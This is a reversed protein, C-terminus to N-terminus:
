VCPIEMANEVQKVRVQEHEKFMAPSWQSRPMDYKDVDWGVEKWERVAKDTPHLVEEIVAKPANVEAIRVAIELADIGDDFGRIGEDTYERVQGLLEQHHSQRECDVSRHVTGNMDIFENFQLFKIRGQPFLRIMRAMRVPKAKGGNDLEQFLPVDHGQARLQEGLRRHHRNLAGLMAVREWGIRIASYQEGVLLAREAQEESPKRDIIADLVFLIGSSDIGVFITGGPDSDASQGDALDGGGYVDLSQLWENWAVREGTELNLFYEEVGDSCHMFGNRHPKFDFMRSGPTVPLCLIEKRASIPDIEMERQFKEVSTHWPLHSIFKGPSTEEIVSYQVKRWDAFRNEEIVTDGDGEGDAMGQQALALASGAHIPTGIWTLFQGERNVMPRFVDLILRVVKRRHEKSDNKEDEPDDVAIFLGGRGRQGSQISAGLIQSYRTGHNWFKLTESSWDKNKHLPNKKTAFDKTIREDYDLMDKIRKVEERTRMDNIEVILCSSYPRTIAIFPMAEMILPTTKGARRTGTVLTKTGSNPNRPPGFVTALMEYKRGHDPGFFTGPNDPKLYWETFLFFASLFKPLSAILVQPKKPDYWSTLVAKRAKRRDPLSLKEYNKPLRAKRLFEKLEAGRLDRNLESELRPPM